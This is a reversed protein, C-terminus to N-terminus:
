EVGSLLKKGTPLFIVMVFEYIKVNLIMRVSGLQNLLM